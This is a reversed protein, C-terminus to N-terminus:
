MHGIEKLKWIFRLTMRRIEYAYWVDMGKQKFYGYKAVLVFFVFSRLVYFKEDGNWKRVWSFKISCNTVVVNCERLTLACTLSLYIAMILRLGGWVRVTKGETKVACALSHWTQVTQGALPKVVCECNFSSSISWNLKYNLHTCFMQM